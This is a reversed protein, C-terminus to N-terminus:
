LDFGFLIGFHWQWSKGYRVTNEGTPTLFGEDLQFDFDDLGYTASVFLATPLLYFSGMGLRLEAGVDKRLPGMESFPGNWAAAVDAYIRGYLKDIYTFM